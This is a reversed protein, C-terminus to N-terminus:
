NLTNNINNITETTKQTEDLIDKKAQAVEEAKKALDDLATAQKVKRKLNWGSFMQILKIIGYVVIAAIAGIELIRLLM